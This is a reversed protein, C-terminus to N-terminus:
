DRAHEANAQIGSDSSVPHANTVTSVLEPQVKDIKDQLCKLASRFNRLENEMESIKPDGAELGYKEEM